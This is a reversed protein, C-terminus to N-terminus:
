SKVIASAILCCIFILVISGLWYFSHVVEQYTLGNRFYQQRDVVLPKLGLKKLGSINKWISLPWLLWKRILYFIYLISWSTQDEDSFNFEIYSAKIESGIVLLGLFIYDKIWNPLEFWLLQFPWHVISRYRDILVIFFDSWAYWDDIFSVLGVAGGISSILNWTKKLINSGREVKM